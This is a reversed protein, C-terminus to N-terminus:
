WLFSVTAKTHISFTNHVYRRLISSKGACIDGIILLKLLRKKKAFAQMEIDHKHGSILLSEARKETRNQLIGHRLLFHSPPSETFEGIWHLAISPM